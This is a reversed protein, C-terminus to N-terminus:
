GEAVRFAWPWVGEAAVLGAAEPNRVVYEVTAEFEASDRILRDYYGPQWIFHTGNLKRVLHTTYSKFSAVWSAISRQAPKLVVHLHDPMLCAASILVATRGQEAILADWVRQGAADAFPRRQPLARIVVHFAHEPNAYIEPELRVSHRFAYDPVSPM